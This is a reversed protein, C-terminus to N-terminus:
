TPLFLAWDLIIFLLDHLLWDDFVDKAAHVFSLESQVLWLSRIHLVLWKVHNIQLLRSVTVVQLLAQVTEKLLTDHLVVLMQPPANIRRVSLQDTLQGVHEANLEFAENPRQIVRDLHPVIHCEVRHNLYWLFPQRRVQM